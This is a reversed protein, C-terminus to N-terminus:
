FFPFQLFFILNPEFTVNLVFEYCLLLAMCRSLMSPARQVCKGTFIPVINRDYTKVSLRPSTRVYSIQLFLENLMAKSLTSDVFHKMEVKDQVRIEKKEKGRPRKRSVKYKGLMRLHM